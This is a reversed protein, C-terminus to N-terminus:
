KITSKSGWPIYIYIGHAGLVMFFLPKPWRFFFLNKVMFVELIYTQPARPTYIYINVYMHCRGSRPKELKESAVPSKRSARRKSRAPPPKPPSLIKKNGSFSEVNPGENSLQNTSTYGM